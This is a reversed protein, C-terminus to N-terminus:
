PAGRVIVLPKGPAVFKEGAESVGNATIIFSVRHRMENNGQPPTSIRFPASQSEKM